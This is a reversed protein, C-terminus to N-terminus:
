EENGGETLLKTLKNERAKARGAAYGKVAGENAHNAINFGPKLERFVALEYAYKFWAETTKVTQARYQLKKIRKPLETNM